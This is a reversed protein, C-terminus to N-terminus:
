GTPWPKGAKAELRVKAFEENSIGAMRFMTERSLMESISMKKLAESYFRLLREEELLDTFGDVWDAM